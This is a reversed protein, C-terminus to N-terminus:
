IRRIRRRACEKRFVNLVGKDIITEAMGDVDCELEDQIQPYVELTHKCCLIFEPPLASRMRFVAFTIDVCCNHVELLITDLIDSFYEDMTRSTRVVEQMNEEVRKVAKEGYLMNLFPFSWHRIQDIQFSIYKELPMGLEDACKIIKVLARYKPSKEPSYKPLVKRWYGTYNKLYWRYYREAELVRMHLTVDLDNFKM